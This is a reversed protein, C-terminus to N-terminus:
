IDSKWRGHSKLLREPLCNHAAQSVGGSRLIHLGFKKKDLGLDSLANLLLERARTTYLLSNLCYITLKSFSSTISV